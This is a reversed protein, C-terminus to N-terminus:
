ENYLIDSAEVYAEKVNVENGVKVRSWLLKMPDVWTGASLNLLVPAERNGDILTRWELGDVENALIVCLVIGMALWHEKKKSTIVSKDVLEQMAQLDDETGQFDKKLFEKVTKEVWEYAQDIQYIESIRVPILEAPYKVGLRRVQLSAIVQQAEDVTKGRETTFTCEFAIDDMGVVWIHSVYYRGEEMFMEQSYACEYGGVNVGRASSNECLEQMVSDHGYTANGRYASIRFNGTWEDPNYFLFAEATDEFENWDAPYDMSFWTGPAIFRKTEKM